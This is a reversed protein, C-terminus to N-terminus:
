RPAAPGTPQPLIELKWATEDKLYTRAVHQVDAATVQNLEPITTRIADLNRPDIQATAIQNLWYANTKQEQERQQVWPGRARELEDASVPNAALDTVVRALTDYFLSIKTLPVEAYALLFGYGNFIQSSEANTQPLYTAGDAIRLQEVLRQNIIRELIRVARARKSDSYFDPVPWAMLVGANDARGKHYLVAPTAAAKPFSIDRAGAPISATAPRPPLAGFTSATTAIAQDVTTDGVITVLIPSKQLAPSLRAQLDEIRVSATDAADANAWRLDGDRIKLAVDRQLVGAPSQDFRPLQGLYATRARDFSERPWGPATMYAALVQMQSELDNTTTQGILGFHDEGWELTTLMTKSPLARYMDLYSIAKLGGGIFAASAWRASKQDKPEGLLGDGFGVKVLVQGAAFRTPKVALRVGNAFTIQTIGLDAIERRSVVQGPAGFFTYPWTVNAYAAPAAIPAADAARLADALKTEGGDVPTPSAVFVLPGGPGFAQRLSATVEDATLGETLKRYAALDQAPSTAIEKGGDVVRLMENAVEPSTRTAAGAALTEYRARLVAVVRDVEDQRLGYQVVQRRVKEAVALSAEIRDPDPTVTFLVLKASHSLDQPIAGVPAFPRQPTNQLRLGFAALAILEIFDRRDGAQTEITPQYPKVWAVTIQPQVGAEVFLSTQAPRPAPPGLAPDPGAAGVPKWNSFRAKIQTEVADPDIDGVVILTAREPRYYAHYFDAIRSVPAHQIVDTLGIPFRSPLRQGKLLFDIQAKQLHYNAVDSTREESLVVGREADMASQTLTLESAIERMRLLGGAVTEQDNRPLDFLYTTQTAETRANADAGVTLGLRQLDQWVEAEPVHTSGRFAMHELFHALGQQADSENLSGAGIRFRISVLSKPTANKVIEYHMGNPLIGFRIAPDPAVDSHAQPWDAQGPPNAAAWGPSTAFVGAVVAVVIAWPWRMGVRDSAM